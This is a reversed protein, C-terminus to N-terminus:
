RQKRRTRTKRVIAEHLRRLIVAMAVTVPTHCFQTAQQFLRVRFALNPLQTVCDVYRGDEIDQSTGALDVMLCTGSQLLMNETLLSQRGYIDVAM